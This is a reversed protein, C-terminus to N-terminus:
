GMLGAVSVNFNPKEVRGAGSMAAAPWENTLPLARAFAKAAHGARRAFDAPLLPLPQTRKFAPNTRMTDTKM